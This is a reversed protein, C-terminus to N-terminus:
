YFVPSSLSSLLSTAFSDISAFPMIQCKVLPSAILFHGCRTYSLHLSSIGITNASSPIEGYALTLM